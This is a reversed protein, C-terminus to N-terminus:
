RDDVALRELEAVFADPAEDFRAPGARQVAAFAQGAGTAIHAATGVSPSPLGALRMLLVVTAPQLAPAADLATM